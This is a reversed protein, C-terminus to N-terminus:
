YLGMQEDGFKLASVIGQAIRPETLWRPGIAAKDLEQDFARFARGAGTGEPKPPAAWSPLSGHLRWTVFLTASEPLWHPLHRKYYAM